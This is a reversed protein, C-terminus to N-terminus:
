PPTPADALCQRIREACEIYASALGKIAQGGADNGGYARNAANLLTMGEKRLSVELAAVRQNKEEAQNM